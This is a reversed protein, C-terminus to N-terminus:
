TIENDHLLTEEPVADLLSSKNHEEPVAFTMDVSEIMSLDSASEDKNSESDSSQLDSMFMDMSEQMTSDHMCYIITDGYLVCFVGSKAMKHYEDHSICTGFHIHCWKDCVDCSVVVSYIHVGKLCIIHPYSLPM